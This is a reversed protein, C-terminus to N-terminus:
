RLNTLIVTMPCTVHAGSHHGVADFNQRAENIM